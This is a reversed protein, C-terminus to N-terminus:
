LPWWRMPRAAVYCRVSRQRELRRLDALCKDYRGQLGEYPDGIVDVIEGASLGQHETRERMWALLAACREQTTM